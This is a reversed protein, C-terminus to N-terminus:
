SVANWVFAANMGKSAIWEKILDRSDSRSGAMNEEDVTLQNRFQKRGGGLIVRLKQGVENLILQRALDQIINPDCNEAHIDADNQWNQNASHAYLNAPAADTVSSTTVFGAWKGADMAWKAISSTHVTTDLEATCHSRPVKATVGITGYNSKAGTLYATGTCACDPVQYDVCYTKAMGVIFPFEEFSLSKEEGGIYPRTAALTTMSMGNGVFMIINKAKGKNQTRGMQDRVFAQGQNLWFDTDQETLISERDHATSLHSKYNNTQKQTSVNITGCNVIKGMLILVLVSQKMKFKFTDKM